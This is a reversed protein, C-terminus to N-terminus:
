ESAKIMCHKSISYFKGNGFCLRKFIDFSAVSYAKIWSAFFFVIGFTDICIVNEVCSPQKKKKKSKHYPM